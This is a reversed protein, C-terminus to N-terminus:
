GSVQSNTPSCEERVDISIMISGRVRAHFLLPILYVWIHVFAGLLGPTLAAGFSCQLFFKFINHIVQGAVPLGPRLYLVITRQRTSPFSTGENPLAADARQGRRLASQVDSAPM